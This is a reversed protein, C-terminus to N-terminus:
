GGMHIYPVWRAFQKVGITDQLHKVARHLAKAAKKSDPVGDELLWKYTEGAVIPADQDKISWVTAIVNAYGAMLLGAALHIAENPLDSDGKATQCASLFALQTNKMSHRSIMALILDNDHLHLASDMPNLLNQSGHCAFHVWSHDGMANVVADITAGDEELRTFRKNMFQEEVKDLEDKTGPLSSLGRISSQHGVALIGSFTPPALSSRCMSSLTPTYSSIALNSLITSPSDYIGAAHVPLFSLAGAICWTIRPLDDIPLVRTINLHDLVPKVVDSWLTALISEFSAQLAHDGKKVGRAVGQSKLCSSLQERLENAKQDSFSPLPVHTIAHTGPKVIIADCQTRHVTLTVTAGHQIRSIITSAKPPRLFDDFGPKLRIKDILKDRKDALKSHTHADNRLPEEHMSSRYDQTLGGTDELLSSLHCLENALEPHSAHLINLPTRLQLMQGWLLCRGQELWEVALDYRNELIAAVVAESAVDRISLTLCEFRRQISTGLWVAEPLRLMCHSYAELADSGGLLTLRAWAMAGRFRIIPHGAPSLAACRSYIESEAAHEPEHSVNFLIMYLWGLGASRKARLPDSEPTLTLSQTKCDLAMHVHEQQGLRDFLAWYTNGLSDLYSSKMQHGNPTLTVAQTKYDVAAYIHQLEGLRDFIKTYANGLNNLYGPKDPHGDPTLAAAKMECDVAAHIHQLEGLRNFLAMYASGLNNLYSPKNPHGDPTLAVAQTKCDIAAHIHRLEGLRDFLAIYANGLNNLYGPKNPHGDHTLAVAQTQCDLAAHIHELQGLRNFIAEYTIGLNSLHSPKNSHGDPTLAVAKAKCEAAAQIHELEGLRNFLIKYAIGLNSLYSPKDSNGDPTLAVAKMNHDVAAYIHRLEGLRDFLAMYANGLNSLRAPTDPHGDPTLAVAKTKCDVAAHIHRLEGLRDFLAEHANGLNNLCVPKNPHGDHTLAVAQTQCDLAAHIHELKGLRNFIAEYAIGLNSLYSSKNPHSDPTLAVAKTKCDVAAQIHQLEGLRNFLAQYANGLDNLYGPKDPHGDPTLAAAQTQCDVAAQIHELEGLRNFLAMYASGLNGLYGPKDPHGDPTLAASQELCDAARRIHELEGLLNFLAYYAIGLNSLYSPKDPHSSPALEAVQKMCDAMMYVTRLNGFRITHEAKVLGLSFTRDHATGSIHAVSNSLKADELTDNLTGQIRRHSDLEGIGEKAQTTDGQLLINAQPTSSDAMFESCAVGDSVIAAKPETPPPLLYTAGNESNPALDTMRLSTNNRLSTADSRVITHQACPVDIRHTVSSARRRGDVVLSVALCQMESLRWATGGSMGGTWGQESAVVAAQFNSTYM